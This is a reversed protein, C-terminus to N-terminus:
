CIHCYIMRKLRHFDMGMKMSIQWSAKMPLRDPACQGVLCATKLGRQTCSLFLWSSGVFFGRFTNMVASDNIPTQCIGSSRVRSLSSTDCCRCKRKFTGCHLYSTPCFAIGHTITNEEGKHSLIYIYLSCPTFLIGDCQWSASRKRKTKSFSMDCMSLSCVEYQVAVYWIQRQRSHTNKIWDPLVSNASFMFTVTWILSESWVFWVHTALCIM